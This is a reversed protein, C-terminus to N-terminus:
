LDGRFAVRANHTAWKRAVEMAHLETEYVAHAVEVPAIPRKVIQWGDTCVVCGGSTCCNRLVIWMARPKSPIGGPRRRVNAREMEM